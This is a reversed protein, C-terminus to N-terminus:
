RAATTRTPRGPSRRSSTSPAAQLLRLRREPLDKPACVVTRRHLEVGGYAHRDLPKLKCKNHDTRSRTAPSWARRRTCTSWRPSLPRGLGERGQRRYCRDTLDAPKDRAIKRELPKRSNTTRSPRRALPGDRLMSNLECQPDPSSRPRGRGSSSIATAATRATSGRGCPSRGTPTTSRARTPDAATSSRPVPRPQEDRQDDRQPLRQPQDLPRRGPDGSRPATDGRDGAGLVRRGAPALDRGSEAACPRACRDDRSGISTAVSAGEDRAARALRARLLDDHGRDDAVPVRRDPVAAVDGRPVGRRGGVCAAPHAALAAAGRRQLRLPARGALAYALWDQRACTGVLPSGRVARSGLRLPLAHSLWDANLKALGAFM